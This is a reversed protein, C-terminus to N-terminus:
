KEWVEGVWQEGVWVDVWGKGGQHLEELVLLHDLRHRAHLHLAVVLGDDVGLQADSDAGSRNLVVSVLAGSSPAPPSVIPPPM